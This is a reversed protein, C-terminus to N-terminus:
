LNQLKKLKPLLPNGVQKKKKKFSKKLLQIGNNALMVNVKGNPM